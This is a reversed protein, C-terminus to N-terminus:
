PRRCFRFGAVDAVVDASQDVAQVVPQGLLDRPTGSHSRPRRAAVAIRQRLGFRDRDAEQLLDGLQAVSEGLVDLGREVAVRGGLAEVLDDKAVRANAATVM